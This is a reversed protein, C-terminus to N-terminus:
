EYLWQRGQGAASDFWPLHIALERLMDNPHYGNSFDRYRVQLIDVDLVLGLDPYILIVVLGNNM